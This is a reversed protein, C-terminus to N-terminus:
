FIHEHSLAFSIPKRVIAFIPRNPIGNRTILEMLNFYRPFSIMGNADVKFEKVGGLGQILTFVGIPFIKQNAHCKIMVQDPKGEENKLMKVFAFTGDIHESTLKMTNTKLTFNLITSLTFGLTITSSM